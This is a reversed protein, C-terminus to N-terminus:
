NGDPEGCRCLHGHLLRDPWLFLLAAAWAQNRRGGLNKPQDSEFVVKGGEFSIEARFQPGGEELLWEGEIRQTRKTKSRDAGAEKVVQELASVNVNNLITM